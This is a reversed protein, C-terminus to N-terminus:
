AWTEVLDKAEKLGMSEKSIPNYTYDRLQKIAVIKDRTRLYQQKIIELKDVGLGKNTLKNLILERYEPSVSWFGEIIDATRRLSVADNPWEM